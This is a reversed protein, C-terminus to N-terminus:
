KRLSKKQINEATIRLAAIYNGLMKQFAWYFLQRRMDFPHVYRDLPHSLQRTIKELRYSFHGCTTALSRCMCSLEHLINHSYKQKLQHTSAYELFEQLSEKGFYWGLGKDPFSRSMVRKKQGFDSRTLGAEEAIRRCIPRDYDGGLSWPSMEASNSIAVIAAHARCGFFPIPLHIFGVRLRFEELDAGSPDGRVIQDSTKTINKEWVKDGHFGSIFVRGHLNHELPAFFVDEGGTGLCFFEYENQLEKYANRAVEIVNLGLHKALGAGNDADPEASEPDFVSFADQCGAQKALTACTVSDYGRSISVLPKFQFSRKTSSANELVSKLSNSLFSRYEDFSSFVPCPKKGTAILQFEESLLINCHSYLNIQAGDQLPINKIAKDLGEIISSIDEQYFLYDSAMAQGSAAVVFAMSNSIWIEHESSIAYIRAMTNSPSVIFLTGDKIVAGSAACVYADLLGTASLNGNWCGEYFFDTNCDVGSGHRVTIFARERKAEICWALNPLSPIEEFTFKM